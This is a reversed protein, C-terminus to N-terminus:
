PRKAWSELLEEMLAWARQRFPDAQQTLSQVVRVDESSEMKLRSDIDSVMITFAYQQGGPGMLYGAINHAFDLSGTKAFVRMSLSSQTMRNRIWGSKGSLSLMSIMRRDDYSHNRVQYLWKTLTDSSLRNHLSLGSGNILDMTDFGATPYRQILWAKMKAAAKDLSVEKAGHLLLSEAVLNNSYELASECLNLLPPGKLQHVSYDGRRARVYKEIKVPPLNIGLQAAFHRFLEATYLTPRRVPLEEQRAYTKQPHFFWREGPNALDALFRQRPKLPTPSQSLNIYDIHPITRFEHRGERLVRFRNFEVSLASLGPNYTQDLGGLNEIQHLTPALSEDVFFNGNVSQIGQEKLVWAFEMLRTATLVPDLGGILFLDGHLVGNRVEGRRVLETKPTFAPSQNQLAFDCTLLKLVSAPVHPIESRHQYITKGNSLDILTFAFQDTPLKHKNALAQIKASPEALLKPGESALLSFSFFLFFNLSLPLIMAAKATPTAALFEKSVSIAREGFLTISLASRLM